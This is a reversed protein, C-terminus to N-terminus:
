RKKREKIREPPVRKEEYITWFWTYFDNVAHTLRYLIEEEEAHTSIVIPYQEKKNKFKWGWFVAHMLEHSVIGAGVDDLSIMVTGSRGEASNLCRVGRTKKCFIIHVGRIKDHNKDQPCMKEYDEQMEAKKRYLRVQVYNTPSIWIRRWHYRKDQKPM